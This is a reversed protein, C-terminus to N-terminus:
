LVDCTEEEVLVSLDSYGTKTLKVCPKRCVSTQSVQRGKPFTDLEESRRVRSEVTGVTEYNTFFSVSSDYGIKLRTTLYLPVVFNNIPCM